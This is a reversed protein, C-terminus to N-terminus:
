LGRDDLAHRCGGHSAPVERDIRLLDVVGATDWKHSVDNGGGIDQPDLPLYPIQWYDERKAGSKARVNFGKKIADQHSGSFACVVLQGGYPARPHIPIKNSKEVLDIVSTIDSFDIGPHIGQTYLNLALTVLDVNGTREGNGFLTGEVRDAGAMQSLEAAAIACGRDNHPHLSVAIKNRESINRCFYEIQDAYINPTSSHRFLLTLLSGIM